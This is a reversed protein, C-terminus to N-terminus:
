ENLSDDRTIKEVHQKFVVSIPLSLRLKATSDSSKTSCLSGRPIPATCLKTEPENSHNALLFGPGQLIYALPIFFYITNM